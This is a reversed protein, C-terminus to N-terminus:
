PSVQAGPPTADYMPVLARVVRDRHSGPDWRLLSYLSAGPARFYYQDTGPISGLRPMVRVHFRGRLAALVIMRYTIALKVEAHRQQVAAMPALWRQRLRRKLARAEAALEAVDARMRRQSAHGLILAQTNSAIDHNPHIHM